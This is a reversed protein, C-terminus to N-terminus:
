RVSDKGVYWADLNIQMDEYLKVIGEELPEAPKPLMAHKTEPSEGSKTVVIDDQM